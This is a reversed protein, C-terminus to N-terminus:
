LDAEFSLVNLNVSGRNNPLTAFTLIPGCMISSM